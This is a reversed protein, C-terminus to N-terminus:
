GPWTEVYRSKRRPAHQARDRELRLMEGGNVRVSSRVASANWSISSVRNACTSDPLKSTAVRRAPVAGAVLSENNRSKLLAQTVPPTLWRMWCVAKRRLQCPHRQPDSGESAGISLGMSTCYRVHAQLGSLRQHRGPDRRRDGRETPREVAHRGDRDTRVVESGCVCGAPRRLGVRRRGPRLHEPPGGHRERGGQRCSARRGRDGRTPTGPTAPLDLVASRVERDFLNGAVRKATM